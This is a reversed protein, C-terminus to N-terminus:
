ARQHMPLHAHGVLASGWAMTYRVSRGDDGDSGGAGHDPEFTERTADVPSILPWWVALSGYFEIKQAM